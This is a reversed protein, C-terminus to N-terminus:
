FHTKSVLRTKLKGGVGLVIFLERLFNKKREFIAAVIKILHQPNITCEFGLM